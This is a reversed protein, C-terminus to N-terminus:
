RRVSIEVGDLIYNSYGLKSKLLESSYNPSNRIYNLYDPAGPIVINDAVIMTGSKILDEQELLKLDRLYVTGNHHIFIFDFSDIHFLTKLQPIIHDTSDAVIHIRQSAGAHEHIRHAINASTTNSEITVLLANDPMLAAIRLSSYGIFTGLFCLFYRNFYM